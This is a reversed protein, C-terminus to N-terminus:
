EGHLYRKKIELDIRLYKHTNTIIGDARYNLVWPQSLNFSTHYYGMAWPCDEQLIDDMRQVIAARKPGSEIVAMQEYLKNMEPNDYNSENPGPAKNPGYLLQYVNEADPYDLGWGGYSLQLNGQKMKELFAPFTNYIVNLKIGVDAFQKTFFEGMQRSVSDAGRMDFNLMPLDKGDPYGAKKLLERAQAINYDYKIKETKPRDPIGPPLASIMKKGRGNTFLDIWEDRNIASSIAQRLHKNGGLLKDKLNFSVYYFRAGTALSLKIGKNKLEQSLEMQPTIAQAFNDKPIGMLELEGRMFGLWSPQPEKILVFSIEDLFPLPRGSDLLLGQKKYVPSAQLPYFEPHHNPNRALIIKHGRNWKKLQFPGTGVPHDHINGNEDGYATIAERPVPSAFTMVLVYLLQPYPKILKIQLTYDDLAKIGVPDEWHKRAEAKPLASLKDHFANIGTIKGDFVWWGQSQISPIALRKLGYVFDQAKVERGKGGTEKFCPDDQYKVGRKIPITVTLRDSSYKPMDAALLPIVKYTESLYDYQYLTEYIDPVIDLSIGDYANAPDLSKADDPISVRLVPNNTDGWKKTCGACTLSMSALVTFLWGLKIISRM